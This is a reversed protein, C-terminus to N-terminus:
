FTRVKQVAETTRPFFRDDKARLHAAGAILVKKGLTATLAKIISDARREVIDDLCTLLQTQNLNKSLSACELTQKAM